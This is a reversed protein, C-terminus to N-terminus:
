IINTGLLLENVVGQLLKNASELHKMRRELEDIRTIEVSYIGDKYSCNFDRSYHEYVNKLEDDIYYEIEYPCDKLISRIDDFTHNSEIISIRLVEKGKGYDYRYPYIDNCILERNGIVIKKNQM